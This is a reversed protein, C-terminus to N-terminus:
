LSFFTRNPPRTNCQMTTCDDYENAVPATALEPTNNFVHVFVDIKAKEKPSSHFSYLFDGSHILHRKGLGSEEGPIMAGEVDVPEM